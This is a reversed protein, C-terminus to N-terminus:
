ANVLELWESFSILKSLGTKEPHIDLWYGYESECEHGHFKMLSGDALENLIMNQDVIAFGAGNKAATIVQDLTCFAMGERQLAQEDLLLGSDALWTKWTPLRVGKDTVHLLNDVELPLQQARMLMDPACVAIYQEKRLLHSSYRVRASNGFRIEADYICEEERSSHITLAMSSFQAKFLSVRPVLWRNAYTPACLINLKQRQNPARIECVAENIIGFGVEVKALLREGAQTLRLQQHQRVFLPVGLCEELHKVQRSVAGHTVNLERSALTFSLFKGAFQFARLANLSPLASM